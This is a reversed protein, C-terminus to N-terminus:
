VRHNQRGRKSSRNQTHRVRERFHLEVGRRKIKILFETAASYKSVGCGSLWVMIATVAAIWIVYDLEKIVTNKAALGAFTGDSRLYHCDVPDLGGSGSAPDTLPEPMFTTIVYYAVWALIFIVVAWILVGILMEM